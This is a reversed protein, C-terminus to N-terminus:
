VKVIIMSFGKKITISNAGGAYWRFKLTADASLNVRAYITVTNDGSMGGTSYTLSIKANDNYDTNWDGANPASNDKNARGTIQYNLTGATASFEADLKYTTSFGGGLIVAYTGALLAIQLDDDDQMANSSYTEDASKVKAWSNQAAGSAPVNSIPSQM